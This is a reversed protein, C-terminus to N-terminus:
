IHILSLLKPFLLPINSPLDMAIVSNCEAWISLHSDPVLPEEINTSNVGQNLGRSSRLESSELYPTLYFEFPYSESFASLESEELRLPFLVATKLTEM